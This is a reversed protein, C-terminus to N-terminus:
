IAIPVINLAATIFSMMELCGLGYTLGQLVPVRNRLEACNVGFSLSCVAYFHRVAVHRLGSVGSFLPTASFIFNPM